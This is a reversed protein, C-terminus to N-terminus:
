ASGGGPGADGGAAPLLRLLGAALEQIRIPKGLYGNMGAQLCRDEDGEMTNATLALVPLDRFRDDERLSRTAQVGDMGPMQVDMLVLDFRERTVAFLSEAGSVATATTCGLRELMRCAIMRNMPNDDVVLVHAGLHPLPAPEPAAPEPCCAPAGITFTFKAGAGLESQLDLEGGMLECLRRSISLGLGTGGFRRAMSPDAQTFPQFLRAQQEESVGIGTDSVSFCLADRAVGPRVAVEILGRETFKVANGVLNVLVQRLRTPDARVFAPAADDCRIDLQLGKQRAASEFLLRVGDLLPRLEFVIPDLEMRGAEIKSLDLVDNLLTLLMAASRAIGDVMTGQEDDLATAQLLEGLGIIGNLPTRIEHSMMALFESKAQSGADALQMAKGLEQNTQQLQALAGALEQTRAQVQKELLIAAEFVAFSSGQSDMSQEVRRVLVENIRRLKANERELARLAQDGDGTSM